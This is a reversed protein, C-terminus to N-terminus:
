AGARRVVQKCAVNCKLCSKSIEGTCALGSRATRRITSRAPVCQVSSRSAAPGGSSRNEPVLCASDARRGASRSAQGPPGSSSFLRGPASTSVLENRAAHRWALGSALGQKRSWRCHSRRWTLHVVECPATTNARAPSSAALISTIGFGAFHAHAAACAPRSSMLRTCSHSSTFRSRHARAM